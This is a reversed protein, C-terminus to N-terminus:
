INTGDQSSVKKLEKVLVDQNFVYYQILQQAQELTLPKTIAGELQYRSCDPMLNEASDETLAIIPVQKEITSEQSRIYKAIAYGSTGKLKIDMLVLDYKESKFLVKVGSESDAVDVFCNLQMLISQIAKQFILDDEILLINPTKIFKQYISFEANEDEPTKEKKKDNAHTLTSNLFDDLYLLTDNITNLMQEYLKEFCRSHGAKKYREMYLLAYYLRVTGYCAGGKIKHALREITDWDGQQHAKKIVALDDLIGEKKVSKLIDRLTEESGISELGVQIDFLPFKDIEFLEEETNPLDPGLVGGAPESSPNQHKKDDPITNRNVQNSPAFQTSDGKGGYTEMLTMLKSLTMPKTCVENMGADRYAQHEEAGVHGTCGIIVTPKRGKAREFLRIMRALEDGQNHPLGIDTIIWDFSKERVLDYATEADVAESVQFDFPKILSKLATMASKNDEVLLIQMKNPNLDKPTTSKSLNRQPASKSLSAAKPENLISGEDVTAPKEGVKLSLTFSITTGVGLESQLKIKGGMLSVFKQVIHLGLGYGTYLGKYSPSVKFFQDFVKSQHEPAIGIGTDKVSFELTAEEGKLRLLRANLEVGGDKTFKIANGTLNLLIRHLKRKDGVLYPPISPDVTMKIRLHNVQIMPHELVMVDQLVKQVNFSEYFVKDEAAATTTVDELVNESFELLLNGSEHILKAYEVRETYTINEEELASALGIVGTLPTRTDHSINAIFVSKARSAAEAAEKAIRLEEEMKKRETIDITNGVIGAISGDKNWIPSKISLLTIKEGSPLQTDEERVLEKQTKMVEIDNKRYVDASDQNFIQYDSKGIVEDEIGEKIFGMRQLSKGCRINMGSWIGNADKWYIDGPLNDILSKLQFRQAELESIRYELEQIKKEFDIVSSNAKNSSKDNNKKSM